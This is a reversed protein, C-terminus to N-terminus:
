GSGAVVSPSPLGSGAPYRVGFEVAYMGGLSGAELISPLLSSVGVGADRYIGSLMVARHPPSAMWAAVVHAPTAYPGTGWALNQGVAITAHVRYQTGAVLGMPTQGTPRVDAFYNSRVMNTVQSSAVARLAANARLPRVDHRARVRDILCLTAADIAAPSATGPRLQAGPCSKASASSAVIATSTFCSLALVVTTLVTSRISPTRTTAASLLPCISASSPSALTAAVCIAAIQSSKRNHPTTL